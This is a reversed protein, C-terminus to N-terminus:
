VEKVDVTVTPLATATKALEVLKEMKEIAEDIESSDVKIKVEARYNNNTKIIEPLKAGCQPCFKDKDKIGNKKGCAICQKAM